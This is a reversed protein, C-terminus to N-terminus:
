AVSPMPRQQRLHERTLQKGREVGPQDFANLGYLEGLLAVHWEYCFLLAGFTHPSLRPLQLHLTPRQAEQLSQRTAMAEGQLLTAMDHGGLFAFSPEDTHPITVACNHHAVTMITVVKNNPGDVFLQLQSHQDTAGVAPIPTQGLGQKGLSEALLQVYWDTFRRLAQAYPMMVAMSKQHATDLLYHIGALQAASNEEIAESFCREAMAQAGAIMEAIDIGACAAPFLAVPTLASFRGGVNPPVEFSRLGECIVMARLPGTAPDTTVIVHDKWRQSGFRKQLLERVILWQAGTEVTKGSKSVVNVCTMRWDLQQIGPVFADPDVNDFISLTPVSRRDLSDHMVVSPNLLAELMARLGLASGGIGLVVVHDFRYRVQQAVKLISEVTAQDFPLEAFGLQHMAHRECLRQQATRLRPLMADWEQATIGHPEGIADALVGTMDLTIKEM